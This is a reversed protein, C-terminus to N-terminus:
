QANTIRDKIAQAAWGNGDHTFREHSGRRFTSGDWVIVQLEVEDNRHTHIWNFSQLENNRLRTSTATGAQIVLVSGANEVMKLAAEAYTRHFHGALALHVGAKCVAQVADRHRGVTESLEGGEGIPMAYLPHHTVLIRTKGAPVASFRDQLLAIQARNIRGDKITFSRATNVGLVAVEDNEFWPSLNNDIYRKYRDLPARFRRFIDYLPVDHNGPVVLTAFGSARLRNLYGSAQRFQAVKARQTFDGSIIILDPQQQLLWAETAAVIYPDHAGFHIDSLHAIRAM